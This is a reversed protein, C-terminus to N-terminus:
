RGKLLSWVSKKAAERVGQRGSWDQLLSSLPQPVRFCTANKLVQHVAAPRPHGAFPKKCGVVTNIVGYDQHESNLPSGPNTQGEAPVVRVKKSGGQGGAERVLRSTSQQAAPAGSSLYCNKLVQHVAAQGPVGLM